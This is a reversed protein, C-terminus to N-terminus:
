VLEKAFHYAAVSGQWVACRGEAIAAGTSRERNRWASPRITSARSSARRANKLLRKINARRRLRLGAGQRGACAEFISTGVAGRATGLNMMASWSKGALGWLSAPTKLFSM